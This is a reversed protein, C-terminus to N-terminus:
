KGDGGKKTCSAKHSAWHLKQCRRSCYFVRKCRGCRTLEGGSGRACQACERWPPDREERAVMEVLRAEWMPPLVLQAVATPLGRRQWCLLLARAQDRFGQPLRHHAGTSWPVGFALQWEGLAGRRRRLGRWAAGCCLM